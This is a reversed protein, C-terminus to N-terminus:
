SILGGSLFPGKKDWTRVMDMPNTNERITEIDFSLCFEGSIKSEEPEFNDNTLHCLVNVLYRKPDVAAHNLWGDKHRLDWVFPCIGDPQKIAFPVPGFYAVPRQGEIAKKYCFCWPYVPHALFFM